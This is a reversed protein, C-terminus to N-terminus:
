SFFVMLNKKTQKIKRMIATVNDDAINLVSELCM